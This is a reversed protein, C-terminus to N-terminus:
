KRRAWNDQMVKFFDVRVPADENSNQRGRSSTDNYKVGLANSIDTIDNAIVSNGNISVSHGSKLRATAFFRVPTNEKKNIAKAMDTANGSAHSDYMVTYGDKACLATVLAAGNKPSLLTYADDDKCYDFLNNDLAVQNADALSGEYGLVKAMRYFTTLTCGQERITIKKSTGLYEDSAASQQTDSPVDDINKGDPDTYKVPNNGAYHYLNANTLRASVSHPVIRWFYM